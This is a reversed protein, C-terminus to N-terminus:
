ITGIITGGNRLRRQIEMGAPVDARHRQVVCAVVPVIPRRSRARTSAVGVAEEEVPAEDTRGAAFFAVVALRDAAEGALLGLVLPSGLFSFGADAPNEPPSAGLVCRGAALARRHPAIKYRGQSPASKHSNAKPIAGNPVDERRPKHELYLLFSPGQWSWVGSCKESHVRKHNTTFM